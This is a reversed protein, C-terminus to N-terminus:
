RRQCFPYRALRHRLQILFASRLVVIVKSKDIREHALLGVHAVGIVCILRMSAARVVRAPLRIQISQGIRARFTSEAIRFSTKICTTGIGLKFLCNRTENSEVHFRARAQLRLWYVLGSQSRASGHDALEVRQADQKKARNRISNGARIFM